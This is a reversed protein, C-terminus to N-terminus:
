WTESTMNTKSPTNEHVNVRQYKLKCHRLCNRIATQDKYIVRQYKFLDTPIQNFLHWVVCVAKFTVIWCPFPDDELGQAYKLPSSNIKWHDKPNQLNQVQVLVQHPFIGVLAIFLYFPDVWAPLSMWCLLIKMSLLQEKLLVIWPNYDNSKARM